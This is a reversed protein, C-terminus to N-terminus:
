RLNGDRFSSELEPLFSRRAPKSLEYELKMRGLFYLLQPTRLKGEIDLGSFTYSKTKKGVEAKNGVPPNQAAPVEAFGVQAWFASGLLVVYGWMHNPRM